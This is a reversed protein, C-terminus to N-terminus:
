EVPSTCVSKEVVAGRSGGGVGVALAFMETGSFRGRALNGRPSLGFASAVSRLEGDLAVLLLVPGSERWEGWASTQRPELTGKRREWLGQAKRAADEGTFAIDAVDTLSVRVRRTATEDRQTAM